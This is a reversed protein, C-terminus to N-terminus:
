SNDRVKLRGILIQRIGTYRLNVSFFNKYSRTWSLPYSQILWSSSSEFSPPLKRQFRDKFTSEDKETSQFEVGRTSQPRVERIWEVCFWLKYFYMVLLEVGNLEFVFKYFPPPHTACFYCEQKMGLLGPNVDRGRQSNKDKCSLKHVAILDFGNM